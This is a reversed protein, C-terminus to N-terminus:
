SNDPAVREIQPNFWLGSGLRRLLGLKAGLPLRGKAVFYVQRAMFYAVRLPRLSLGPQRRLFAVQNRLGYRLKWVDGPAIQSPDGDKNAPTKHVSVSDLVCFCPFQRSIRHTYEVDDSWIFFEKLPLGVEAVARRSVLISVFTSVESPICKDHLVSDYWSMGGATHSGVMNMKHLQGDTWRVISSLYGASGTKFGPAACLKKLADPHPITDDDMLWFWDHGAGYAAKIGRHFGGAGGLNGQHIATLDSQSDLFERTGDNSANNIVFIEDVARSQSHLADLCEQLLALRNRTVVIAAIRPKPLSNPM